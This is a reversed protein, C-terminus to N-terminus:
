YVHETWSSLSVQHTVITKTVSRTPKTSFRTDTASLSLERRVSTNAAIDHLLVRVAIDM